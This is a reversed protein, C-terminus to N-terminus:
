SRAKNKRTDTQMKIWTPYTVWERRKKSQAGIKLTVGSHIVASKIKQGGTCYCLYRCGWLALEHVEVDGQAEVQGGRIFGSKSQPSMEAPFMENYAGRGTIVIDGTAEMTSHQVYGVTISSKRQLTEEIEPLTVSTTRKFKEFMQDIENISKLSLPGRGVLKSGIDRLDMVSKKNLVLEVEDGLSDVATLLKSYNEAVPKFKTDLLIKM